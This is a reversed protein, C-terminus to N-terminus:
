QKGAETKKKARYARIREANHERIHRAKCESEYACKFAIADTIYDNM